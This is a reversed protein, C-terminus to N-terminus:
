PFFICFFLAYSWCTSLIARDYVIVGNDLFRDRTMWLKAAEGKIETMYWAWIIPSGTSDTDPSKHGFVKITMDRDTTKLFGNPRAHITREPAEIPARRRTTM